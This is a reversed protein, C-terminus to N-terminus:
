GKFRIMGWIFPLVLPCFSLSMRSRQREYREDLEGVFGAARGVSQRRFGAQRVVEVLVVRTWVSILEM